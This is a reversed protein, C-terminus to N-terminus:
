IPMTRRQYARGIRAADESHGAFVRVGQDIKV